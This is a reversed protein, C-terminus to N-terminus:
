VVDLCPTEKEIVDTAQLYNAYTKEVHCIAVDEAAILATVCETAVDVHMMRTTMM